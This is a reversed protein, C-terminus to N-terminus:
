RSFKSSLVISSTTRAIGPLRGIEDLLADMEETTEARVEAVLDYIGSIAKLSVVATMRKLAQAVRDGFKANINIMVMAAVQRRAAADGLRLTYGAIVGDRELHAIRNAVTARAVGLTAALKAVPQRADASLLAILKHDM